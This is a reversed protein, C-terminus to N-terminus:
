GHREPLSASRPDVAVADFKLTITLARYIMEAARRRQGVTATIGNRVMAVDFVENVPKLSLWDELSPM